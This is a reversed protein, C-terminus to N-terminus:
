ISAPRGRVGRADIPGAGSALEDPPPISRLYGSVLAFGTRALAASQAPGDARSAM